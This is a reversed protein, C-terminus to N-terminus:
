KFFLLFNTLYKIKFGVQKHRIPILCLMGYIKKAEVYPQIVPLGLPTNWQMPQM